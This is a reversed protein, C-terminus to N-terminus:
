ARMRERCWALIQQQHKFAMQSPLDSRSFWCLEAVDSKPQPKGSIVAAAFCFNLTQVARNGYVDPISGLYDVLRIRLNTEELTERIVAQEASEGANVFGGPIDWKGKRPQVGRRALLVRGDRGFILVAVCPRPNEFDVFQCVPCFAHGDHLSTLRSLKTGDYPCYHFCNQKKM